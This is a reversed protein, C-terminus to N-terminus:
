GNACPYPAVWQIVFLRDTALGGFSFSEREETLPEKALSSARQTRGFEDQFKSQRSRTYTMIQSIMLVVIIDHGCSIRSLM